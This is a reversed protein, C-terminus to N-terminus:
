AVRAARNQGLPCARAKERRSLKEKRDRKPDRQALGRPPARPEAATGFAGHEDLLDQGVSIGALGFSSLATVGAPSGGPVWIASPLRTM